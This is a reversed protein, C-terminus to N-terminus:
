TGGMPLPSFLWGDVVGCCYWLCFLPFFCFTMDICYLRGVVLGTRRVTRTSHHHHHFFSSPSMGRTHHTHMRPFAVTETRHPTPTTVFIDFMSATLWCVFSFSLCIFQPPLLGLSFLSQGGGAGCVGSFPLYSSLSTRTQERGFGLRIGVGREGCMGAWININFVVWHCPHPPAAVLPFHQSPPPIPTTTTPFTCQPHIDM